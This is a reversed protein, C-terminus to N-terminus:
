ETEYVGRAPTFLPSWASCGGANCARVRIPSGCYANGAASVYTKPGTYLHKGGISTELQYGTATAVPTWDADCWIRYPATTTSLWNAM